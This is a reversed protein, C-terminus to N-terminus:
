ARGLREAKPAVRYGAKYLCESVFSFGVDSGLWQIITAAITASKQDYEMLLKGGGFGFPNGGNSLLYVLAPTPRGPQIKNESAWAEAYIRERPNDAEPTLRHVHLGVHEIEAKTKM